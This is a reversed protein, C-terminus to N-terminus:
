IFIAHKNAKVLCCASDSLSYLKTKDWSILKLHDWSRSFNLWEGLIAELTFPM